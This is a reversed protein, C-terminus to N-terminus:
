NNNIHILCKVKLSFAKLLITHAQKWFVAPPPFTQESVGESSMEAM